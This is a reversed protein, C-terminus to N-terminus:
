ENKKLAKQACRCIGNRNAACGSCPSNKYPSRLDIQVNHKIAEELLNALLAVKKSDSKKDLLSAATTTLLKKRIVPNHVLGVEKLLQLLIPQQKKLLRQLNVASKKKGTLQRLIKRQLKKSGKSM